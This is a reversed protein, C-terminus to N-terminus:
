SLLKFLKLVIFISKVCWRRLPFIEALFCWYISIEDNTKRYQDNAKNKCRKIKWLQINGQQIQAVTHAYILIYLISYIDRSNGDPLWTEEMPSLYHLIWYNATKKRGKEEKRQLRTKWFLLVIHRECGGFEEWGTVTEQWRGFAAQDRERPTLYLQQYGRADTLRSWAAKFTSGDAGTHCSWLLQEVACVSMSYRGSFIEWSPVGRPSVRSSVPLTRFSVCHWKELILGLLCALWSTVTATGTLLQTSYSAFLFSKLMNKILNLDPIEVHVSGTSCILM